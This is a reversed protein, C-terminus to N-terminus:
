LWATRGVEVHREIGEQSRSCGPHGPALILAYAEPLPERTTAARPSCVRMRECAALRLDQPPIGEHLDAHRVINLQPKPCIDVAMLIQGRATM